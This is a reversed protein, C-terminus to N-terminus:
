KEFTIIIGESDMEMSSARADEYSKMLRIYQYDSPGEGGQWPKLWTDFVSAGVTFIGSFPIVITLEHLPSFKFFWAVIDEYAGVHCGFTEGGMLTIATHIEGNSSVLLETLQEPHIFDYSHGDIIQRQEVKPSTLARKPKVYLKRERGLLADYITVALSQKYSPDDLHRQMFEKAPERDYTPLFPHIALAVKYQDKEVM